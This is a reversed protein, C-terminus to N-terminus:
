CIGENKKIFRTGTVLFSTDRIQQNMLLIPAISKPVHSKIPIEMLPFKLSGEREQFANLRPDWSTNPAICRKPTRIPIPLEINPREIVLEITCGRRAEWPLPNPFDLNRLPHSEEQPSSGITPNKGQIIQHEPAGRQPIPTRHAATRRFKHVIKENVAKYSIRQPHM